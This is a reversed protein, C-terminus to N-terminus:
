ELSDLVQLDHEDVDRLEFGTRFTRLVRATLCPVQVGGIQGVTFGDAPYQYTTGDRATQTGHGAADFEVPHLDVDMNGRSMVFRGPRWDLSMEYGAAVLRRIADDEQGADFALDLDSHPRTQRGALADVGWGGGVWIRIGAGALLDVVAVVDVATAM